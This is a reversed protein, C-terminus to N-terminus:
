IDIGMLDEITLGGERFNGSLAHGYFFEGVHYVHKSIDHDIYIKFGAKRAKGCFNRDEGELELTHDEKSKEPDYFRPEDKWMFDFWPMKIKRFVEAKVMMIGTGVSKCEELGTSDNKTWLIEGDLTIATPKAPIEKTTANAAVVDKDALFMRAITDMPFKMDDDMFLIHSAGFDLAEVVMKNRGAHLISCNTHNYPRLGVSGTDPPLLSWFASMSMALSQGFHAKWTDRTPIVIAILPGDNM